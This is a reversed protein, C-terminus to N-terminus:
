YDEDDEEEGFWEDELEDDIDDYSDNAMYWEDLAAEALERLKNTGSITLEDLREFAESWGTKGLAWVAEMMIDKDKSYTLRLLDDGAEDLGCQGAAKIAEQQIDKDTNHIEKLIIEKWQNRASRGMAFIASLKLHRDGSDYAQQIFGHVKEDDLFGLAELAFRREDGPKGPNKYLQILYKKAEILKEKPIDDDAYEKFIEDDTYIFDELEFMYRGLGVIARIRITPDPDKESLEKLKMLHNENPMTWLADVAKARVTSDTDKLLYGLEETYDNFFKDEGEILDELYNLKEKTSWEEMPKM